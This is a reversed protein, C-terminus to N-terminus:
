SENEPETKNYSVKEKAQLNGFFNGFKIEEQSAFKNLM